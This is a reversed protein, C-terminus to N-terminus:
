RIRDISKILDDDKKIARFAMYSFFSSLIPFLLGVSFGIGTHNNDSIRYIFFFVLFAIGISLISTYLSLRMQAKRNKFLFISITSFILAITSLILTPYSESVIEQTDGVVEYLGYIYLRIVHTGNIMENLPLWFLLAYLIGSILLYLSQIRQIM